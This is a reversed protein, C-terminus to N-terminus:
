VRSRAISTRRKTWSVNSAVPFYLPANLHTSVINLTPTLPDIEINRGGM